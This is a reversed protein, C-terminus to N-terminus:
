RYVTLQGRGLTKSGSTIVYSYVGNGVDYGFDSKGDWPVQNLGASGGATGSTINKRITMQGTADFVILNIDADKSLTYMIATQKDRAPSFPNPANKPTDTIRLDAEQIKLDKVELVGVNGAV